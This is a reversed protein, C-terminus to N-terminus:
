EVNENAMSMRRRLIDIRSRENTRARAIERADRANINIKTSKRRGEEPPAM